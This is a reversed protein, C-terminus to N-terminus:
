KACSINHLTSNVIESGNLYAPRINIGRLFLKNLRIYHYKIFFIIDYKIMLFLLIKYIKCCICAYLIYIILCSHIFFPLVM